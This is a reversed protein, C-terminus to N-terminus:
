DKEKKLFKPKGWKPVERREWKDTVDIEIGYTDRKKVETGRLMDGRGRNASAKNCRGM